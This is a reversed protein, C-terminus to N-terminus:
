QEDVGLPRLVQGLMTLLCCHFRRRYSLVGVLFPLAHIFTMGTPM